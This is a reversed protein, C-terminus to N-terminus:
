CVGVQESNPKGAPYESNFCAMCYPLNHGVERMDEVSLHVLSEVGLWQQIEQIDMKNAILESPVSMDIGYFCPHKVQASSIRLHIERVGCERLMEVLKKSTNGRVVSDDVVVVSKGKLVDLLPNLKLQISRERLEPTPHIFTRGVYRNKILGEMYPIGSEHSYGVAAVNGSDPVPIVMDANIEPSVRALKRGLEMRYNYISSGNIMSDPRAFYVLEFFCFHEDREGDLFFSETAGNRKAVFIEGPYIDRVYEAGVIDLACTESAVVLMGSDTKGYCLPRLGNRDRAAILTDGTSIVMSFAGECAELAEKVASKLPFKDLQEQQQLAYRIYHAVWHSDSDGYGSYGKEELFTRLSETNILNGNHALTVAGLRTRVVVPQANDLNSSGTTSYRTHGIGVQGTMKELVSPVFVQNVLGMDKHIRLQDNDFVAMGCSEQGRHQLAYLGYFLFQGLNQTKSTVMGFVGCEEGLSRYPVEDSLTHEPLEGEVFPTIPNMSSPM